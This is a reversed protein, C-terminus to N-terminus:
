VKATVAIWGGLTRRAGCGSGLQEQGVLYALRETLTSSATSHQHLARAHLDTLRQPHTKPNIFAPQKIM